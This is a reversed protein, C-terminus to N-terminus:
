CAPISINIALYYHQPLIINKLTYPLDVPSKRIEGLSSLLSSRIYSKNFWQILRKL